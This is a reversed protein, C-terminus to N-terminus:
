FAREAYLSARPSGRSRLVGMGLDHCDIDTEPSRQPQAHLSLFIHRFPFTGVKGSEPVGM